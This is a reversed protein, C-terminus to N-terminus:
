EILGEVPQNGYEYDTAEKANGSVAQKVNLFIDIDPIAWKLWHNNVSLISM